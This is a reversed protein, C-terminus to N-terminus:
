KPRKKQLAVILCGALFLFGADELLRIASFANKDWDSKLDVCTVAAFLAFLLWGIAMDALWARYREKREWADKQAIARLVEAGSNAADHMDVESM